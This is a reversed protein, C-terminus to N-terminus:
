GGHPVERDVSFDHVTPRRPVWSHNQIFCMLDMHASGRYPQEWAKQLTLKEHGSVVPQRRMLPAKDIFEGWQGSRCASIM